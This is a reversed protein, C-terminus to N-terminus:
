TGLMAEGCLFPASGEVVGRPIKASFLAQSLAPVAGRCHATVLTAACAERRRRKYVRVASRVDRKM